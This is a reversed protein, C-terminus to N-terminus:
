QKYYTSYSNPQVWELVLNPVLPPLKKFFERRIICISSIDDEENIYNGDHSPSSIM